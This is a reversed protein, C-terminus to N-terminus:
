DTLVEKEKDAAIADVGKIAKDTAKQVQDELNHLDDDTYDGNKHGKKVSDMADRRVNRVAVKGQEATAKVQKAIEKRREETLQPIVLRLATGDNAPTIGVDSELIGKEIDELASKDYPTVMLVRPEPITISAVQNLPTQAGYYDVTVRNLISANARGARITGLERKLAEEAKKMRSQADTIIQDAM